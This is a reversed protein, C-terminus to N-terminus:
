VATDFVGAVARLCAFLAPRNYVGVGVSREDYLPPGTRRVVRRCHRACLSRNRRRSRFGVAKRPGEQRHVLFDEMMVVGSVACELPLGVLKAASTWWLAVLSKPQDLVVLPGFPATSRAM